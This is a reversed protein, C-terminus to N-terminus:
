VNGNGLRYNKAFQRFYIKIDHNLMFKCCFDVKLLTGSILPIM